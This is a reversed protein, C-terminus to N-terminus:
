KALWAKRCSVTYNFRGQVEAIVSKVKISPDAEVLPRIADAITNPMIKHFRAWPPRTSAM